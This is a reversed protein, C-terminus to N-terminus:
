KGKNIRYLVYSGILVGITGFGVGWLPNFGYKQFVQIMSFGVITTSITILLTWLSIRINKSIKKVM